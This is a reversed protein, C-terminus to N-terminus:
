YGPFVARVEDLALAGEITVSAPIHGPKLRGALLRVMAEAPLHLATAEDHAGDTAPTLAVAEDLELVYTLSPDFTEILVRGNVGSPRGVWGALRAMHPLVYPVVYAAVPAAAAFAVHVDWSHLAHETLRFTVATAVDVPAPLFALDISLDELTADDLDELEAVLRGDSQRFAALADIPQLSNWHAWISPFSQPGPPPQGEIAARLTHYGIEAGSGIHALVQAVTWEDAGSRTSLLREDFDDVFRALDDHSRRLTSIRGRADTTV